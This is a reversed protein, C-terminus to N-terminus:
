EKRGIVIGRRGRSEQVFIVIFALLDIIATFGNTIATIYDKIIFSYIVWFTLNVM